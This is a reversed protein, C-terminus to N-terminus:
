FPTDDWESLSVGSLNDAIDEGPEGRTFQRRTVKDCGYVFRARRIKHVTVSDLEIELTPIRDAESATTPAPLPSTETMRTVTIDQNWKDDPDLFGYSIQCEETALLPQYNVCSARHFLVVNFHRPSYKGSRQVSPYLMGDLNLGEPDALYEAIVQTPLYDFDEDGPMVPVVIRESLQRLFAIQQRRKLYAPDLESGKPRLHTLAPLNLLQLPRTLSFRASVVDSGVPPRIEAIATDPSSAGYFVSIGRASMRNTGSLRHPPPGLERDPHLLMKELSQQGSSYRARYLGTVDTGPGASLIIQPADQEQMGVIGSFIDGLTTLVNTNIYRSETKLSHVFHDWMQEYARTDEDLRETYQSEGEFECEEGTHYRDINSHKEELLAQVDQALASSAILLNEIVDTIFDGQRGWGDKSYRGILSEWETPQDATREYHQLIASETLSAITELSVSAETEGCYHCPHQEGTQTIRQHLWPEKICGSCVWTDEPAEDCM